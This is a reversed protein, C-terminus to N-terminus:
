ITIEHSFAIAILGNSNNVNIRTFSKSRFQRSAKLEASTPAKIPSSDSENRFYIVNLQKDIKLVFQLQRNEKTGNM